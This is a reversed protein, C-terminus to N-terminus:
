TKIIYNLITTPQINTHAAGSGAAATTGNVNHTHSNVAVSGRGSPIENIAPNAVMIGAGAGITGVTLNLDATPATGSTTIAVTHTHGALQATSLALHEIGGSAGLVDGDLGSITGTLRNASTGGMDDQGAVVRGRLDPVNFTTSGDGVGYITGIVGFLTAFTTRNIASGDCLVFGSPATAGAFPIVGGAPVGTSSTAAPMYSITRWQGAAYEFMVLEAGAAVSLNAAGPLILNTAHHTLTPAGTFHLNVFSGVGHATMSTIGVSGTVDFSNGHTPIILAAASVINAGKATRPSFTDDTPNFTGQIIWQAGDYRKLVWATAVTDDLWSIGAVAYAPASSGKNASHVADRWANLDVALASGSKSSAVISGFDYQPM